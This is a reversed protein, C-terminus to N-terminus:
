FLYQKRGARTGSGGGFPKIEYSIRQQTRTYQQRLRLMSEAAQQILDPQMASSETSALRRAYRLVVQDAVAEACDMIPVFVKKFDVNPFALSAFTAVYRIRIDQPLLSGHMYIADGRWEWEGGSHDGQKVGALPGPSQKMPRFDAETGARRSFVELPLILDSPLGNLNPIFELGDNVGVFQISQAAMPNPVGVGLASNIPPVGLIFYGDRILTPQGSIRIGRYVSRIASNLLVSLEVSDNTLLQGEGPTGTKGKKSDNVLVRCLTAIENMSPYNGGHFGGQFGGFGGM